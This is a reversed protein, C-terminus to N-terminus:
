QLRSNSVQLRILVQLWSLAPVPQQFSPSTAAGPVADPAHCAGLTTTGSDEQQQVCLDNASVIPLAPINISNTFATNGHDNSPSLLLIEFSYRAGTTSQLYAFL